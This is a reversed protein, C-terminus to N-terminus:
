SRLADLEHDQFGCTAAWVILRADVEDALGDDVREVPPCYLPAATGDGWSREVYTSHSTIDPMRRLGAPVRGAACPPIGPGSRAASALLAPLRAAATGRGTPGPPRWPSAEPRPDGSPRHMVHM